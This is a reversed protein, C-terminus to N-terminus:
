PSFRLPNDESLRSALLKIQSIDYFEGASIRTLYLLNRLYSRSVISVGVAYIPIELERVKQKIDDITVLSNEDKGDSFVIISFNSTKGQLRKHAQKCANLADYMSDFLGTIHGDPVISALGLALQKADNTFESILTNGKISDGRIAIISFLDKSGVNDILYACAHLVKEFTAGSLSLSADIIFVHHASTGNQYRELKYDGNSDGLSIAELLRELTKDYLDAKRFDGYLKGKLFGPLEVDDLLLPLVIVRNENIERNSAIDLEKKVWNSKISVRSLLAAVYDVKDIGDRIKNILSDGIQIEAEDIWVTHGAGRLDNALKRAFPKDPHSHSLFINSM